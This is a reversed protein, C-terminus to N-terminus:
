KWDGYFELVGKEDRAANEPTEHFPFFYLCWPVIGIERKGNSSPTSTHQVAPDSRCFEFWLKEPEQVPLTISRMIVGLNDFVPQLKAISRCRCNFTISRSVRVRRLPALMHELGEATICNRVPRVEAVNSRHHDEAAEIGQNQQQRRSCPCPVEVVVRELGPCNRAIEHCLCTMYRFERASALAVMGPSARLSAILFVDENFTVKLNRVKKMWVPSQHPFVQFRESMIRFGHIDLYSGIHAKFYRHSYLIEIAENHILKNLYLLSDQSKLNSPLIAPKANPPIYISAFPKMAPSTWHTYDMSDEIIPHTFPATSSAPALVEEYIVLRLEPPLRLFPSPEARDQTAPSIVM